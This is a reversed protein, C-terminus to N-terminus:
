ENSRESADFHALMTASLVGPLLHLRNLLDGLAGPDAAELVLAFRGAKQGIVEVQPYRALQSAVKEVEGPRALLLAASIADHDKVSTDTM